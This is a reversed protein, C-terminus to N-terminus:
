VEKPCKLLCSPVRGRPYGPAISLGCYWSRKGCKPTNRRHEVLDPCKAKQCKASSPRVGRLLGPM